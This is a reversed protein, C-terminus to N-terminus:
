FEREVNRVNNFWCFLGDTNSNGETWGISQQQFFDNINTAEPGEESKLKKEKEKKKNTNNSAIDDTDNNNNISDSHITTEMDNFGDKDTYSSNRM